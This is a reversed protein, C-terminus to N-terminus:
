QYHYAYIQCNDAYAEMLNEPGLQEFSVKDITLTKNFIEFM